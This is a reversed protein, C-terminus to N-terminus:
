VVRNERLIRSGLDAGRPFGGAAIVDSRSTAALCLRSFHSFVLEVWLVGIVPQSVGLSGFQSRIAVGCDVKLPLNASFTLFFRALLEGRIVDDPFGAPTGEM